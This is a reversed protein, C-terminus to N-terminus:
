ADLKYLSFFCGSVCASATVGLDDELLVPRIVARRELAQAGVGVDIGAQQKGQSRRALNVASAIRM